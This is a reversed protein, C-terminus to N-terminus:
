KLPHGGFQNRLATLIKGTYSPHKESQIRFKVAEEIIKAKIKMETATKTTWEGEGTHGVIGSVGKFNDGYLKFANKLWGILRSEIVSGRNYVDAVKELDLKYKANKIITFGEAIAQMMGYEIGNHVMKVFHGAGAGEFFQYSGNKSLDYFLPELKLFIKKDGGIMLSAGYRAGELGGSVGVDVFHIGKKKLKRFRAVSDKYFSNGGDIIIDDKKLFRALGDKGFILEDIAKGVPIMLWVLRPSSLKELLEKISYAPRLGDKELNKAVEATRNYGYVQWGKEILRLAMNSGMKGLGIIGIEKKLKSTPAPSLKNIYESNEIPQLTDPAYTKLPVADKQWEYFIPDIYRWMAEVEKSSVFLTQDGIVCDYLLKEYEETYRTRKIGERLPCLCVRKEIEFGLGPKKRWLEFTVGEEPELSFIIKNQYHGKINPPCLCPLPHKLYVVIEKRAEKLRKGSELIMPVNQWRPSSLFALTKFYTETTSDPAVGKIEKYGEYQARFTFKQIESKKLPILTQLVEERKKRIAEAQFDIPHDMTILALMQLLHNQGVDRLAGVSDYFSGRDEVGINEWLKIEVKEIFQNSWNNEFLNNSFRFALIDQLAEKALYHDIRYIQIEKFLKALLKELDQATKLDKGFPKEVIVRTWGEEFSGPKTLGSAALNHFISEYFQPPVALYFLKNTCVGLSDDIKKLAKNLNLYANKDDFFGQVYSFLNLFQLLMDRNVGESHEILIQSVNQRFLKDVLDRRAFGIVRFLDPLKKKIFLHYLAPVIKKRMLDGTAGLVILITPKNKTIM